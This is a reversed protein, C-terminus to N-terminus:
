VFINKLQGGLSRARELASSAASGAVDPNTARSAAGLGSSARGASGTLARGADLAGGFGTGRALGVLQPDSLLKNGTNAASGLARSAMGLGGSVSRLGGAAKNFFSKAGGAGKNFFSRAAGGFGAGKNFLSMSM